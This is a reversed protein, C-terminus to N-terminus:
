QLYLEQIINNVSTFEYSFLFGGNFDKIWHRLLPYQRGPDFIYALSIAAEEM